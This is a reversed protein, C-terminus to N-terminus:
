VLKKVFNFRGFYKNILTTPRTLFIEFTIDREQEQLLYIYIYIYIKCGCASINIKVVLKQSLAKRPDSPNEPASKLSVLGIEPNKLINPTKPNPPLGSSIKKGRRKACLINNHSRFM